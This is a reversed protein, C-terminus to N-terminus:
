HNSGIGENKLQSIVTKQDKSSDLLIHFTQWAHTKNEPVQPLKLKPNIVNEIYTNAVQERKTLTENFRGIQSIM